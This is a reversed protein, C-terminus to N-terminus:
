KNLLKAEELDQALEKRKIFLYAVNIGLSVFIISMKIGVKEKDWQGLAIFPYYSLLLGFLFINSWSIFKKYYPLYVFLTLFYWPQIERTFSLYVLLLIQLFFVLHNWTLRKRKLLIVPLTIFKIGASLVLFIRSLIQRRQELYYIGIIALSVGILDNHASVLGELIILPHTAFILAIRKDLKQLYYIGLLYFIVSFIKFFLFNLIFKGLGLFSPIFSLVLYSPGYPYPRHVWHMFRLWEDGAFNAPIHTYPNQHYYTFIKADFIYNFFDHSLFPYSFILIFGIIGGVVLPNYKKYNKVFFLHSIFLLILIALYTYWSSERMYYGFYVLQDRFLVWWPHNVLTLNPDILAFSYIQLAVILLVYFILM